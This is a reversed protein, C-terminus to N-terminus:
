ATLCESVWADRVAKVSHNFVHLGGYPLPPEAGAGSDVAEKVPVGNDDQMWWDPAHAEILGHLGYDTCDLNSNYYFIM